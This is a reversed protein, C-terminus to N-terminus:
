AADDPNRRAPLAPLHDRHVFIVRGMAGAMMETAELPRCPCTSSPRHDTRSGVILAHITAPPRTM